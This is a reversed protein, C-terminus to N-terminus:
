NHNEGSLHGPTPNSLYITTRDKIKLSVKMSDEVTTTGIYIGVLLTPPTGKSWVM